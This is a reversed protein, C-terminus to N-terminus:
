LGRLSHEGDSAPLGLRERAIEPVLVDRLVTQDSSSTRCHSDMQTWSEDNRGTGAWPVARATGGGVPPGAQGTV